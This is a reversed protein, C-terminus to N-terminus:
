QHHIEQVLDQQVVLLEVERVEQNDQEQEQFLLDEMVVEEVEV